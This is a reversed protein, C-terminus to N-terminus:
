KCQMLSLETEDMDDFGCCTFEALDLIEAKNNSFQMVGFTTESIHIYKNHTHTHTGTHMHM